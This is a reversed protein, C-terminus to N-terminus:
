IGDEWAFMKRMGYTLLKDTAFAMGAIVFIGVFVQDTAAVRKSDQILRGLGEGANVYEAVTIYTWQIAIGSANALAIKPLALPLVCRMVAEFPEANWDRGSTYFIPPISVMADRIMPIVFVISSSVLFATKMVEDTGIFIIFLPLTVVMPISRLNNFVPSLFANIYASGGMAIGIPQALLFMLLTSILIRSLSGWSASILPLSTVKADAACWLRDEVPECEVDQIKDYTVFISPEEFYCVEECDSHDGEFDFEYTIEKKDDVKYTLDIAAQAVEQPSPFKNKEVLGLNTVGFWVGFLLVVLSSGLITSTTKNIAHPNWM